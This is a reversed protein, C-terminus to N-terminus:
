MLPSLDVVYESARLDTQSVEAECLTGRELDTALTGELASVVSAILEEEPVDEFPYVSTPAGGVFVEEPRVASPRWRVSVQELLCERRRTQAGGALKAGDADVVDARCSSAFCDGHRAHDMGSGVLAKAGLKRMAAAICDMVVFHSGMVSSDAQSLAHVPAAVAVTLDGGHLM